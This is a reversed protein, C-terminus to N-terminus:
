YGIEKKRMGLITGNLYVNERGTLEQHFGTGVEILSSIRGQIRAHGSTPVTIKSLIKLLTSKGAGNRGIIGVIEGKKIKFSVGKLAWIIDPSDAYIKGDYHNELDNFKYLGRYKHYNKLPSKIFDLIAGGISDHLEEKLGIRYCKAIDNTEIAIDDESYAM